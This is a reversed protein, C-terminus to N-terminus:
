GSAQRIQARHIQRVLRDQLTDSVNAFELHLVHRDEGRRESRILQCVIGALSFSGDYAPDIILYDGEHGPEAARALLGGASLNTVVAECGPVADPETPIESPPTELDTGGPLAYLKIPIRVNLRFFDRRQVREMEKAHDLLITGGAMGSESLLRTRFKYETDGHRWFRVYVVDDESVSGLAEEDSRLLPSVLIGSADTEVVLCTCFRTQDNHKFGALLRQGESIDRTTKLVWGAPLEDFRLKRRILVLWEDLSHLSVRDDAGIKETLRDVGRNFAALSGLAVLPNRPSAEAAIRWVLDEEPESLGKEAALNRFMRHLHKRHRNRIILAESVVLVVILALFALFFWFMWEPSDSRPRIIDFIQRYVEEETSAAADM